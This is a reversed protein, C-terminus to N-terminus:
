LAFAPDYKQAIRIIKGTLVKKYKALQQDSLKYPANPDRNFIGLARIHYTMFNAEAREDNARQKKVYAKNAFGIKHFIQPVNLNDKLSRGNGKTGKKKNGVSKEHARTIFSQISFTAGRLYGSITKDRYLAKRGDFSFGLYSFLDGSCTLSEDTRYFLTETTKKPNISLTARGQRKVSAQCQAKINEVSSEPCIWLIDDSYRRYYAGYQKALDAMEADFDIMYINALVDSIPSGQPIGRPVEETLTANKKVLGRAVIKERYENKDCLMKKRKFIFFPCHLFKTKDGNKETLGLSEYCAEKDVLSYETVARLIAKHDKPMENFGMVECWKKALFAHDLSEFFGSIDFTLVTCDGRRSIEDFAEKAFNINCKGKISGPQIPIKRYAIPFADLGKEKLFAEYRAALIFRYYSFLQSDQHAAYKIPRPKKVLIDSADNGAEIERMKELYNSFRRLELPSELFPLFSHVGTEQFKKILSIAEARKTIAHDFHPYTRARFQWSNVTM